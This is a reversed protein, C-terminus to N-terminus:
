TESGVKVRTVMAVSYVYRFSNM